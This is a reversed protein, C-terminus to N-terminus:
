TLAIFVLNTLILRILTYIKSEKGQDVRRERLGGREIEIERDRTRERERERM